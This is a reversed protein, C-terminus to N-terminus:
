SLHRLLKRSCALISILGDEVDFDESVDGGSSTVLIVDGTVHVSGQFYGAPNGQAFVATGNSSAWLGFGSPVPASQPATNSASVGAHAASSSVGRVGDFNTSSGYVGYNNASTGYVGAPRDAAPGGTSGERPDSGNSDDGRVGANGNSMGWVGVGGPPLDLQYFFPSGAAPDSHGFIAAGATSDIEFALDSNSVHSLPLTSQNSL